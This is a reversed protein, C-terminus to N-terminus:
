VLQFAVELKDPNHTLAVAGYILKLYLQYQTGMWCDRPPPNQAQLRSAYELGTTRLHDVHYKFDGTPCVYVGLKKEPKDVPHLSIAVMQGGPQPIMLPQQPLEGLAKLRSEGKVWKWGLMYGFRKAPKLSGGGAHVLGTWDITAAQVSEM